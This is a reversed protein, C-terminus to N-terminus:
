STLLRQQFVTDVSKSPTPNVHAKLKYLVCDYKGPPLALPLSGVALALSVLSSPEVGPHPLDGPLPCTVWKRAQPIVHASSAPLSCDMADCLTPYVSPSLIRACTQVYKTKNFVMTKCKLCLAKYSNYLWQSQLLLM